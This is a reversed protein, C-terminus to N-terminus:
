ADRGAIEATPIEVVRPGFTELCFIRDFGTIVSYTIPEAPIRVMVDNGQAVFAILLWLKDCRQRYQSVLKEKAVITRVLDSETAHRVWGGRAAYWVGHEETPVRVASLAALEPLASGDLQYSFEAREYILIKRSRVTLLLVLESALEPARAKTLRRHESFIAQVHLPLGGAARYQARALDMVRQRLSDQEEAPLRGARTEPSFQTVELGVVEPPSGFVFDPAEGLQPSELGLDPRADRFAELFRLEKEKSAV